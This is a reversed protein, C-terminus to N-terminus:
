ECEYIIQNQVTVGTIAGDGNYILVKGSCNENLFSIIKSQIKGNMQNIFTEKGDIITNTNESIYSEDAPVVKMKSFREQEQTEYEYFNTSSKKGSSYYEERILRGLNDYYFHQESTAKNREDFSIKKSIQFKDNLLYEDRSLSKNYRSIIRNPLYKFQIEGDKKDKLYYVLSDLLGLSSYYHKQGSIEGNRDYESDIIKGNEYTVSSTYSLQKQALDTFVQTFIRGNCKMGSFGFIATSYNRKLNKIINEAYKKDPQFAITWLSDVVTKTANEEKKIKTNLQQMRKLDDSLYQHVLPLYKESDYEIMPKGSGDFLIMATRKPMKNVDVFWSKKDKTFKFTKANTRGVIMADTAFGFLNYIHNAKETHNKVQKEDAEINENEVFFVAKSPSTIGFHSKEGEQAKRIIKTSCSTAFLLIIISTLINKMM